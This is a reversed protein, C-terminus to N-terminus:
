KSKRRKKARRAAATQRKALRESSAALKMPKREAGILGREFPEQENPQDDNRQDKPNRYRAFNPISSHDM